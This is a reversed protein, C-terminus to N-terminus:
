KNKVRNNFEDKVEVDKQSFWKSYLSELESDKLIRLDRPEERKSFELFSEADEDSDFVIGFAFGSVSDYLATKGERGTIRVGM